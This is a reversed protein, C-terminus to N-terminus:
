DPHHTHEQLSHIHQCKKRDKLSSKKKKNKIISGQLGSLQESNKPPSNSESILAIVISFQILSFLFIVLSNLWIYLFFFSFFTQLNDVGMYFSSVQFAM